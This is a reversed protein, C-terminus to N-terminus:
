HISRIIIRVYQVIKPCMHQRDNDAVMRSRGIVDIQVGGTGEICDEGQDSKLNGDREVNKADAFENKKM